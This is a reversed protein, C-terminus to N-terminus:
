QLPLPSPVPKPTPEAKPAPETKAKNSTKPKTETKPKTKTAAKAGVFVSRATLKGDAGSTYSGTIKNGAKLDGFVGPKGDKDFRTESTVLFIREGITFSKALDDVAKVEGQFPLTKAKASKKTDTKKEVPAPTASKADAARLPQLGVMTFASLVCLIILKKM